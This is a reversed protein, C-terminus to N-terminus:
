LSFWGKINSKLGKYCDMIKSKYIQKAEHREKKGRQAYAKWYFVSTDNIEEYLWPKKRSNYHMIHIQALKNKSIKKEHAVQYNYKVADDYKLDNQYIINLIDQDFWEVSDKLRECEGMLYDMDTDRRLLEINMLMVGANFYVHSEPLGIKKKLNMGYETRNVKEECVVYKKGQFDQYYFESIDKLVVIDADLWIIRDVSEPLIFQALIRFYTEISLHHAIPYNEFGIGKVDVVETEMDYQAMTKVFAEMDKREVRSNLFFIKIAEKTCRKLSCLMTVYKDLYNFDSSILVNM